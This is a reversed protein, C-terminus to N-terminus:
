GNYVEGVTLILRPRQIEISSIIWRTGMWKIYRMYQFNELAYADGVVSFRNSIKINPNVQEGNEWRQNNRLIDGTYIHETVVESYVGPSTEVTKIYGIEGHFKAM